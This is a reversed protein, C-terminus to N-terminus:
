SYIAGLKSKMEAFSIPKCFYGTLIKKNMLDSIEDSVAIGSLIFFNMESYEEKVKQLLELGTMGPMRLDSVITTVEPHEKLMELAQAGSKASLLNFKDRFSVKFLLVNAKEDDVYLITPKNQM